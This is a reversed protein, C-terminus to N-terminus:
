QETSAAATADAARQRETKLPNESFTSIWIDPVDLDETEHGRQAHHVLVAWFPWQGPGAEAAIRGTLASKRRSHSNQAQALERMASKTATLKEKDIELLRELILKM